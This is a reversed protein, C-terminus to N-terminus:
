LSPGCCGWNLRCFRAPSQGMAFFIAFGKTWAKTLTLYVPQGTRLWKYHATAMLFLMVMGMAAFIIHFGLSVGMQSRAWLLNMENSNLISLNM